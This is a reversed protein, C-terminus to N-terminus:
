VVHLPLKVLDGNPFEFNLDDDKLKKINSGILLNLGAIPTAHTSGTILQTLVRSYAQDIDGGLVQEERTQENLTFTNASMFGHTLGLLDPEGKSGFRAAHFHCLTVVERKVIDFNRMFLEYTHGNGVELIKEAVDCGRDLLFLPVHFQYVYKKAIEKEQKTIVRTAPQSGVVQFGLARNTSTPAKIVQLFHALLLMFEEPIVVGWFNANSPITKGKVVKYPPKYPDFYRFSRYAPIRGGVDPIPGYPPWDGNKPPKGIFAGNGGSASGKTELEPERETEYEEHPLPVLDWETPRPDHELVRWPEEVFPFRVPFRKRENFENM